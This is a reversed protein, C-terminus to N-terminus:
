GKLSNAYGSLLLGLTILVIFAVVTRKYIQLHPLAEASVMSELTGFRLWGFLFLQGLKDAKPSLKVMAVAERVSLVLSFLAFVGIVGLLIAM